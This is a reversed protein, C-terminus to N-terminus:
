SSALPTSSSLEMKDGITKLCSKSDCERWEVEGPPAELYSSSKARRRSSFNPSWVRPAFSAPCRRQNARDPCGTTHVGEDSSPTDPLFKWPSSHIATMGFRKMYQHYAHSFEANPKVFYLSHSNSRQRRRVLGRTGPIRKSKVGVLLLSAVLLM